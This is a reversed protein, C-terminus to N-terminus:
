HDYLSEIPADDWQQERRWRSYFEPRRTRPPAEDYRPYDRGYGDYEDYGRQSDAMQAEREIRDDQAIEANAKSQAAEAAYSQHKAKAEVSWPAPKCTCGNVLSKRYRFANPLDTYARGAMDVMTKVSGGAANYYFLRAEGDCRRMCARSDHYLRERRVGYSLPFYYGDCLRVCVTAYVGYDEEWGDSGRSGYGDYGYDRGSRYRNYGSPSRRWSRYEPENHRGPGFFQQVISQAFGPAAAASLAVSVLALAVLLRWNRM